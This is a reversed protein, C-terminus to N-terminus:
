DDSQWSGICLDTIKFQIRQVPSFLARPEGLIRKSLLLLRSRRNLELMSFTVLRHSGMLRIPGVSIMMLILILLLFLFLLLLLLLLLRSRRSLESMSFTMLRHSGMLRIAGVAIMMSVLQPFLCHVIHSDKLLIELLSSKEKAGM